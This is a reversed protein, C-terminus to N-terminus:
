SHKESKKKKKNKKKKRSLRDTESCLYISVVESPYISQGTKGM